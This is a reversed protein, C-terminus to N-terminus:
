PTYEFVRRWRKDVQDFLLIGLLMALFFVGAKAEGSAMSVLAPGPCFGALGWGVGFTLSGLILSRDIHSLEPWHFPTGSFSAKKRRALGFGLIGILVGGGMVFVLSPDWQGALDLFSQVKGPDTMGSLLLGFGFILGIFFEIVRQM